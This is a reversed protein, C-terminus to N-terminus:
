AIGSLASLCLIVITSANRRLLYFWDPIIGVVRLKSDLALLYLFCCIQLLLSVSQPLTLLLSIWAALTVVNSTILLNRSCKEPFFLHAAWHIGCIFSIIIAGYTLALLGTDIMQPQLLATIVCAILPLTGSYTLLTALTHSRQHM